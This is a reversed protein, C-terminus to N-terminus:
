GSVPSYAICEMVIIMNPITLEAIITSRAPFDSKFYQQYVANMKAFDNVDALTISVKVVDDLSSGGAELVEKIHELCQRTQAEIGEIPEGTKLNQFGGHGSVFLLDGARIAPSFPRKMAWPVMIVEKPM